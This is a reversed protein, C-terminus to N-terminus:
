GKQVALKEQVWLNVLTDPAVGRKRAATRVKESLSKELACYVVESSIDVDFTAEKTADWCDALDHTDWFDGIERYSSASSVSSKVTRNKSINRRM